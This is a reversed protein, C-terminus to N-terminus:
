KCPGAACAAALSVSDFRSPYLVHGTNCADVNRIVLVGFDRQRRDVADAARARLRDALGRADVCAALILSRDSACISLSRSSTRCYVTSPSRRRSTVILM